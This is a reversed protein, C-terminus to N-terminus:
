GEPGWSVLEMWVDRQRIRIYVIYSLFIHNTIQGLQLQYGSTAVIIM